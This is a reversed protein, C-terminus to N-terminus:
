TSDFIKFLCLGFARNELVIVNEFAFIGNEDTSITETGFSVLANSIPSNDKDVVQGVLSTNVQVFNRTNDIPSVPSDVIISDKKCSAFALVGALMLLIIKKM